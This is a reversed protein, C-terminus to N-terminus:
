PKSLVIRLRRTLAETRRQDLNFPSIVLTDQSLLAEGPFVGPEGTRLERCVEFGSKGLVGSRLLLHMLPQGSSGDTIIRPEVPLGSLGDAIYELYSRQEDLNDGLKIGEYFGTKLFNWRNLM